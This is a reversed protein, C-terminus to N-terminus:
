PAGAPGPLPMIRATAASGCTSSTMRLSPLVSRSRGGASASPGASRASKWPREGSLRWRRKWPIGASVGASTPLASSGSQASRPASIPVSAASPPSRTTATPSRRGGARGPPRRPTRRRRRRAGPGRCRCGGARAARRARRRARRRASRRGPAARSRRWAAPRRRRRSRRRGALERLPRTSSSNGIAAPSAYRARTSSRSWAATTAERCGNKRGALTATSPAEGRGPDIPPSSKRLM